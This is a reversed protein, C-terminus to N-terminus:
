FSFNKNLSDKIRNADKILWNYNENEEDIENELRELTNM